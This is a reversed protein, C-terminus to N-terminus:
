RSSAYSGLTFGFTRFRRTIREMQSGIANGRHEPPSM